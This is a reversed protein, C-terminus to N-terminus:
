KMRKTNWQKEFKIDCIAVELKKGKHEKTFIWQTGKHDINM